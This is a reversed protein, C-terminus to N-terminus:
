LTVGESLICFAEFTSQNNDLPHVSCPLVGLRAEEDFGELRLPVSCAVVGKWVVVGWCPLFDPIVEVGSFGMERRELTALEVAFISQSLSLNEFFVQPL